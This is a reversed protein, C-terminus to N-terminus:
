PWESSARQRATVAMQLELSRRREQEAKWGSAAVDLRARVDEYATRASALVARTEELEADLRSCSAHLRQIEEARAESLKVEDFLWTRTRAIEQRLRANPHSWLVYGGALGVAAGLLVAPVIRWRM